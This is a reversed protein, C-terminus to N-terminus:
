IKEVYSEELQNPHAARWNEEAEALKLYDPVFTHSDVPEAMEALLGLVGARPLQNQAAVESARDGLAVKITEEHISWDTGVFEFTGEKTKLFNVWDNLAIHTDPEVQQLQEAEQDWRYLGTFVNGRRADMMPVIYHKSGQCNGALVELSSIGVLEKKLTWALTKAITVGIRLGTYSGPGKAVAIRHLEVPTWEVAEMLDTIAPMLRQSHNGKINTTFEGVIRQNEIAAVSMVQNSTDIALIKM